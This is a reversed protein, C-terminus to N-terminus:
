IAASELVAHGAATLSWRQENDAAASMARVLEDALIFDFEDEAKAHERLVEALTKTLVLYEARKRARARHQVVSAM